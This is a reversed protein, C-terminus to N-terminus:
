STNTIEFCKGLYSVKTLGRMKQILMAGFSKNKKQKERNKYHDMIKEELREKQRRLDALQERLICIMPNFVYWCFKDEAAM